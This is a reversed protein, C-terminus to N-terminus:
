GSVQGHLLYLLVDARNVEVIRSRPIVRADIAMPVDTFAVNPRVGESTYGTMGLETM